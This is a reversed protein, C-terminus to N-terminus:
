PTSVRRTCTSPSTTTGTSVADPLCSNAARVSRGFSWRTHSSYMAGSLVRHQRAHAEVAGHGRHLAEPAALAGGAGAELGIEGAGKRIVAAVAVARLGVRGRVHAGVQM